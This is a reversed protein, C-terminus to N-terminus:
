KFSDCGDVKPRCFYLSNDKVTFQRGIWSGIFLQKNITFYGNRGKFRLIYEEERYYNVPKDYTDLGVIHEPSIYKMDSVTVVDRDTTSYVPETYVDVALVVMLSFLIKGFKNM